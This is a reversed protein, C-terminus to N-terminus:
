ATFKNRFHEIEQEMEGFIFATFIGKNSSMLMVCMTM